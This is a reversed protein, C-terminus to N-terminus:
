TMGNEFFHREYFLIIFFISTMTPNIFSCSVAHIDTSIEPSQVCFVTLLKATFIASEHWKENKELTLFNQVTRM